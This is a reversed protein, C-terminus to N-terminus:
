DAPGARVRGQRPQRRRTLRDTQTQSDAGRGDRARPRRRHRRQIQIQTDRGPGPSHGHKHVSSAAAAAAAALRRGRLHDSPGSHGHGQQRQGLQRAARRAGGPLTQTVGGAPVTHRSQPPPTVTVGAAPPSEPVTDSHQRKECMRSNSRYTELTPTPRTLCPGRVRQRPHTFHDGPTRESESAGPDARHSPSGRISVAMHMGKEGRASFVPRKTQCWQNRPRDHHHHHPTPAPGTRPTLPTQPTAPPHAPPQNRTHSQQSSRLRGRTM